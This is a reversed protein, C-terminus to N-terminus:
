VWVSFFPKGTKWVYISRISHTEYLISSLPFDINKVSADPISEEQGSLRLSLFNSLAPHNLINKIM